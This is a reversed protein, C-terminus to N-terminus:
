GNGFDRTTLAGSENWYEWVGVEQGIRYNGRRERSGDPFWWSWLGHKLDHKYSGTARRHGGSYYSVFLGDLRGNVYMHVDLGGGDARQVSPGSLLGLKWYDLSIIEGANSLWINPGHRKGDKFSQAYALMGNSDYELWIGEKKGSRMFGKVPKRMGSSSREVGDFFSWKFGGSEMDGTAQESDVASCGALVCLLLIALRRM